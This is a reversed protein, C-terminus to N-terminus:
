NQTRASTNTPQLIVEVLTNSDGVSFTAFVFYDLFIIYKEELFRKTYHFFFIVIQQMKISCITHEHWAKHGMSNKRPSRMINGFALYKQGKHWTEIQM